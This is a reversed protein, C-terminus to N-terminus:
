CRSVRRTSRGPRHVVLPLHDILLLHVNTLDMGACTGSMTPDALMALTGKGRVSTEDQMKTM